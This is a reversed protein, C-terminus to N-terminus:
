GHSLDRPEQFEQVRHVFTSGPEPRPPEHWPLLGALALVVVSLLVAGVVDTFWHAAQVLLAWSMVGGVVAALMWALWAPAWRWMLVACGGALLTAVVHGSPYSGGVGGIDGSTDARALAVKVALTALAGSGLTIATCTIAAWARRRIAVIGALALVLGAVVSPRLGDVIRGVGMQLEGWQGRPRFFELVWEDLPGTARLVVAVTWGAFAAALVVVLWWTRWGPRRVQLTIRVFAAEPAPAKM